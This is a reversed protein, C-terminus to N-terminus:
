MKQAVYWVAAWSLVAGAVFVSSRAVIGYRAKDQDPDKYHLRDDRQVLYDMITKKKM